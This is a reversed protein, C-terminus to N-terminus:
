EHAPITVPRSSNMTQKEPATTTNLFSISRQAFGPRARNGRAAAGADSSVITRL